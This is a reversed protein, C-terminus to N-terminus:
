ALVPRSEFHRTVSDASCRAKIGARLQDVFVKYSPEVDVRRRVKNVGHMVSAHDRFMFQGIAKYSDGNIERILFWTVHRPEVFNPVRAAGRIQDITVGFIVAVYECVELM